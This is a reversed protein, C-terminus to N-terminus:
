NRREVTEINSPCIGNNVNLEQAKFSHSLTDVFNFCYSKFDAFVEKLVSSDESISDISIKLKIWSKIFKISETDSLFESTSLILLLSSDVSYLNKAIKFLDIENGEFDYFREYDNMSNAVCSALLYDLSVNLHPAIKILSDLPIKKRSGSELKSIESPSFSSCDGLDTQTLQRKERLLRLTNGLAKADFSVGQNEKPTSHYNSKM